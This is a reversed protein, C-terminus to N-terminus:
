GPLAIAGLQHLMGLQDFVNWGAVLKGNQLRAFTMGSFTARRHTAMFGLSNGQHTGAGSWRAAVIEGEGVIEDLTIQVDPFAERYAAHFAKFQEPGRMVDGSLGHVVCDPAMMEDIAEARGKNWVEDFWRTVLAKNESVM